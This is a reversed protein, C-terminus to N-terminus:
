LLNMSRAAALADSRRGVALKAYLSSVHTKVTNASLFLTAAIDAYTAGRALEHLVERERPSLAPRAVPGAVGDQAHLRLHLMASQNGDIWFGRGAEVLGHLLEDAWASTNSAPLARLLSIVTSGHKSWGLFPLPDRREETAGLAELLDHQAETRPGQADLLQSRVARAMAAVPPKVCYSERVSQGCLDIATRSDGALDAWLAGVLAAEGPFQARELDQRIAALLEHDPAAAAEFARELLLLVEAPPVAARALPVSV